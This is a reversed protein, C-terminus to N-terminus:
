SFFGSEVSFGRKRKGRVIVCWPNQRYNGRVEVRRFGAKKFLRAERDWTHARLLATGEPKLLRDLDNIIARYSDLGDPGGLLSCPTEYERMEPDLLPITHPLVAPPNSIIFDFSENISEGWNSKLFVARNQLGLDMANQTAAAISREDVDSGIGTANPLEHLLALLLCGSGTGLDLIRLPEKKRDELVMLANDILAEAHPDPRFVEDVMQFKLGWFISFGLIRALPERKERRQVYEEAKRITEDGLPVDLPMSPACSDYETGMAHALLSQADKFPAYVGAKELRETFIRVLQGSTKASGHIKQSADNM